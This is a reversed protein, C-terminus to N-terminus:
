EDDAFLKGGKDRFDQGAKAARDQYTSKPIGAIMYEEGKWVDWDSEGTDPGIRDLGEVADKVESTAISEVAGNYLNIQIYGSVDEHDYQDGEESWREGEISQAINIDEEDKEDFDDSEDM